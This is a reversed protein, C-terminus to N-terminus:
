SRGPVHANNDVFNFADPGQQPHPQVCVLSDGNMNYADFVAETEAPPFGLSNGLEILEPLTYATFPPACGGHNRSQSAQAPATLVIGALLVSMAVGASKMLMTM